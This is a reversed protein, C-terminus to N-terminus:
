GPGYWSINPDRKWAEVVIPAASPDVGVPRDLPLASPEPDLMQGDIPLPGASRGLSDPLITTSTGPDPALEVPRFALDAVAQERGSPRSGAVMPVVVSALAAILVVSAVVRRPRM